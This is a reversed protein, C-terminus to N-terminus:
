RSIIKKVLKTIRLKVMVRVLAHILKDTKKNSKKGINSYFEKLLRTAELNEEIKDEFIIQGEKGLELEFPNKGLLKNLVSFHTGNFLGNNRILARPSNVALGNNIIIAINWCIDWPIPKARLNDLCKFVGGMEIKDKQEPSLLSLGENENQFWKFKDWRNKWTGWGGGTNESYTTFFTKNNDGPMKIFTFTAVHMVKEKEEYFDLAGNMFTLFDPASVGDDELVIVKGYKNIIETVGDTINKEIYFNEPREIVTFSKFGTVTKLYRRVEAVKRENAPNKLINPGDSFIFVDTDKALYNRQLAEVVGRTNALRNYVFIAVPALNKNM